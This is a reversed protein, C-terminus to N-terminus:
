PIPLLESLLQRAQAQYMHTNDAAIRNLMRRAQSLKNQKLFALAQYWQAYQAFEPTPSNALSDLQVLAAAPRGARLSQIGQFLTTSDAEWRRLQRPSVGLRETAFPSKITPNTSIAEAFLANVDPAPPATPKGPEPIEVSPIEGPSGPRETAPREPTQTQAMSSSDPRTDDYIYWGAGVALVIGAAVAAYRWLSRIPAVPTAAAAVVPQLEPLTGEAKLQEHIARFQERYRNAKLGARIRRQAAVEQALEPEHIM